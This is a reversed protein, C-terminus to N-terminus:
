PYWQAFQERPYHARYVGEALAKEYDSHNWFIECVRVEGREDVYYLIREAVNGSPYVLCDSGHVSHSNQKRMEPVRLRKLRQHLTQQVSPEASELARVARQHLYLPTPPAAEVHALYAEYFAEGTPSLLTYGEEEVLLLRIEDPLLCLRRDVEATQRLDANIWHFFEAYTDILSFDWSIPTPPLEIIEQFVEHIYYVPVDFLLGVLTAYAIEAKFGGTANLLVERGASREKRIIEVLVSVLARLGRMKFRSEHYQLDTVERLEAPHGNNKYFTALAEAARKGEETQSHLFVIRDGEHLLRSLSNTEASAKEPKTFRLYTQLDDRKGAREANNLLSTGVTAIITRM